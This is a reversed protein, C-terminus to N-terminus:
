SKKKSKKDKKGKSDCMYPNAFFQLYVAIIIFVAGSTFPPTGVNPFKYMMYAGAILVLLRLVCALYKM